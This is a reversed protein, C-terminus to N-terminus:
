SGAPAAGLRTADLEGRIVPRVAAAIAAADAGDPLHPALLDALAQEDVDDGATARIEALQSVIGNRFQESVAQGPGREKTKPDIENNRVHEAAVPDGVSPGGFFVAMYVANLRKRDEDTFSMDEDEGIMINFLDDLAKADDAYITWLGGHVHKKHSSDSTSDHGEFWGDVVSDDGLDGYWEALMYARGSRCADELRRSVDFLTARDLDLDFARVLQGNGRTDRPDTTGYNRRSAFASFQNWERSRHRGVLHSTNGVTGFQGARSGFHAKVRVGFAKLEPSVQERKWWKEAKIQEETAM